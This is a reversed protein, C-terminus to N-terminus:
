QTKLYAIVNARDQPNKLGAFSMKTGPVVTRPAELYEFLKAETWTIGSNKNAASYVFKPEIGAKRGVVAHLSPGIRNVGPTTVHCAKCQVFVKSGATADGHLKAYAATAAPSPGPAALAPVALGAAVTAAAFLSFKQM